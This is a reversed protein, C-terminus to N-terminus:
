ILPTLIEHKRMPPRWGDRDLRYIICDDPGFTRREVQRFWLREYFRQARANSCLPDVVVAAVRPNSFCRSLALHMM